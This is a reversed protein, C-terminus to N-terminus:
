PYINEKTIIFKAKQANVHHMGRQLQSLKYMAMFPPLDPGTREIASGADSAAEQALSTLHVFVSTGNRISGTLSM